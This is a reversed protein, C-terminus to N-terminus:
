SHCSEPPLNTFFHPKLYHILRWCSLLHPNWPISKLTEPGGIPQERKDIM